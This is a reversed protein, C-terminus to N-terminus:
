FKMPLLFISSTLRQYHTGKLFHNNLNHIRMNTIFSVIMCVAGFIFMMVFDATRGRFSGEELMRCYRFTFIINFLFNFGIPGFFLFTTILRWVQYHKIILIPNFYLQFISVLDLHQFLFSNNNLLKKRKM